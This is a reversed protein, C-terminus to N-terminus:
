LPGPPMRGERMAAIQEATFPPLRLRDHHQRSRFLNVIFRMRQALVSWDTAGYNRGRADPPDQTILFKRTADDDITELEPPVHRGGLMPLDTALSLRGEPTDITLFLRTVMARWARRLDNKLAARRTEILYRRPDGAPLAHEWATVLEDVHRDFGPTLVGGNPSWFGFPDIAKAIFRQLRIQEVLAIRSNAHLMHEARTDASAVLAVNGYLAFAHRLEPTGVPHGIARVTGLFAEIAASDPRGGDFLMALRAFIPGLEEFVSRNGDALARQAVRVPNEFLGILVAEVDTISEGRAAHPAIVAPGLPVVLDRYTDLRRLEDGLAVRWWDGRIFKGVTKSAWTAIGCWNMSPPALAPRLAVALEHYALTIWLNRFAPDTMELIRAVEEERITGPFPDRASLATAGIGAVLRTEDVLGRVGTADVHTSADYGVIDHLGPAGTIAHSALLGSMAAAEICGVNLGCDTWDGVVYFREYGTAHPTIRYRDTGPLSQVYRESPDINAHWFQTAFRGAGTGTGVLSDWRFEGTAPDVAEPWLHRVEGRLFAIANEKALRNQDDAFGPAPATPAEPATPMANCFYALGRPRGAAPWSERDILQRMDACTDFPEVFGSYTAQEASGGLADFDKTLWVQFAQTQVTEVHAVMERWRPDGDNALLERCLYPVSGLPIGFVLRDFDRGAELPQVDREYPWPKWFSELDHGELRPADRIQEARPESPWCPLGGVDVLPDYEVDPDVLDVQRALEVAAIARRDASLRLNKVRHFFRFRVGRRKLVQYLPAFVVDGMGAQMRWFIAGKYEFLLRMLSRVAQGAAIQPDDPDGHRYAFALDYGGLIVPSKVAEESAGHKRLWRVADEEDIARFGGPVVEKVFGIVIAGVIDILAGIRRARDSDGLRSRVFSRHTEVLGAIGALEATRDSIRHADLDDAFDLATMLASPAFAGDGADTLPEASDSVAATIRMMVDYRAPEMPVGADESLSHLLKLAQKFYGWLTLGGDGADPIGPRRGNQPYRIVWPQWQGDHRKEPLVVVSAEKFADDFSALPAGRPRGLEAYCRRMLRFANEYFGLWLHLGHEEIREHQARNRGSAGKGGLRWGQQYVTISELRNRWGRESLAYAATLSAMGGGLIVVKEGRGTSM